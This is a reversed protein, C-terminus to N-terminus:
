LKRKTEKIWEDFKAVDTFYAVNSDGDCKGSTWSALGAVKGDVVLPSGFDGECPVRGLTYTCFQGNLDASPHINSCQHASGIDLEIYKLNAPYRTVAEKRTITGTGRPNRISRNVTTLYEGWGSLFGSEHHHIADRKNFLEIAQTTQNDIKIPKELKLLAIDNVKQYVKSDGEQLPLRGYDGHKIVKAVRHWIGRFNIDSNGVKVDFLDLFTDKRICWATTLVVDPSIIAGGCVHAGAYRISVMFPYGEIPANFGGFIRSSRRNANPSGTFTSCNM